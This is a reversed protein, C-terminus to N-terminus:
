PRIDKGRILLAAAFRAPVLFSILQGGRRTAVNVGVVQGQANV